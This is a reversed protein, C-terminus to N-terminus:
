EHLSEKRENLDQEITSLLKENVPYFFLIIGCVFMFAAPIISFLQKIGHAIGPTIAAGKIYGYQGLIFLGLFGGVAVGMKIAFMIGATVLGTARQKFKWEHFDAVDAFMAFLFVPMAGAAISWIFNVTGLVIFNDEPLWYYAMNLVVTFM